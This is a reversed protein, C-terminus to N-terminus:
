ILRYLVYVLKGPVDRNWPKTLLTIAEKNEKSEPEGKGFLQLIVFQRLLM